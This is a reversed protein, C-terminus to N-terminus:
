KWPEYWYALQEEVFDNPAIHGYKDTDQFNKKIYERTQQKMEETDFGDQDIFERLDQRDFRDCGLVIELAVDVALEKQKEEKTKMNKIGKLFVYGEGSPKHIRISNPYTGIFKVTTLVRWSSDWVSGNNIEKLKDYIKICDEADKKHEPMKLQKQLENYLKGM